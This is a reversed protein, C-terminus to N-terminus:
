LKEIKFNDALENLGCLRLAHQLEHVFKIEITLTSLKHPPIAQISLSIHQGDNFNHFAVFVFGDEYCDGLWLRYTKCSAEEEAPFGNEKLIDETLPIAEYELFGNKSLCIVKSTYFTANPIDCRRMRVWDGIMLEKAEM